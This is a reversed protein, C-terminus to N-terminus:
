AVRTKPLEYLKKSQLLSYIVRVLKRSCLVLARKHHHKKSEQYKRSYYAKFEPNHRRMSNAAQVLYYRLYRNGCKSLRREEREFDGSQHRRWVLGAFKALSAQNKFCSIDKIESIIGLAL